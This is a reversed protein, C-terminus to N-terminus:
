IYQSMTYFITTLTNETKIVVKFSTVNDDTKYIPTNHDIHEINNNYEDNMYKKSSKLDCVRRSCDNKIVLNNKKIDRVIEHKTITYEIKKM